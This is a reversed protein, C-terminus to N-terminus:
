KDSGFDKPSHKINNELSPNNAITRAKVYEVYEEPVNHEQLGILIHNAYELSTRLGSQKNIVVYTIPEGGVPLGDPYKLAITIRQYNIDEGEIAM